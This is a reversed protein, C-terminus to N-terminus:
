PRLSRAKKIKSLDDDITIEPDIESFMMHARQVARVFAAQVNAFVLPQSKIVAPIDNVLERARNAIGYSIEYAIESAIDPPIDLKSAFEVLDELEIDDNKDNITLVMPEVSSMPKPYEGFFRTNMVDYAPALRVSKYSNLNQNAVKVLAVNKLHLDGNELIVSACIQKYLDVADEEFNSSSRRLVDCMEESPYLQAAFPAMGMVSVFDEAFILRLDDDDRPIDFREAIYAISGDSLTSIAFDCTKVGASRALEMSAWEMAGRSYTPDKEVGPLKLIHTFAMHEAPSMNGDKDLHMPIKAQYGSMRPMTKRAILTNMEKIFWDNLQPVGFMQGTFIGHSDSFDAITGHLVDVPIAPIRDADSVISLNCLYRESSSLIRAHANPNAMGNNMANLLHGQPAMNTIFAPFQGPRNEEASLPLMWGSEYNFKWTVGDFTIKAIHRQYWGISFEYQNQIVNDKEHSPAVPSSLVKLANDLEMQMDGVSTAVSTLVSSLDAGHKVELQTRLDRLASEGLFRDLNYRKKGFNQLYVLEDAAVVLKMPGFEQEKGDQFDKCFQQLGDSLLKRLVIKLHPLDVTRAYGSALFVRYNPQDQDDETSLVAGKYYASSEIIATDPFLHNAIRIANKKMFGPLDKLDSQECYIGQSIRHLRGSQSERRAKYANFDKTVGVIHLM